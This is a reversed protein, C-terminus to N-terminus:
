PGSALVRIRLLDFKARGYMKRKLLKIRNVHGETRGNSWHHQMAASVEEWDQKLGAAFGRLEEPSASDEAQLMWANLKEVSRQKVVDNFERCLRKACGIAEVTEVLRTALSTEESTRKIDDKLLLWALRKSSIRLPPKEKARIPSKRGTCREAPDRWPAVLRRVCYWSGSFGIAVARQHLERANHVGSEWWQRIQNAFADVTKRTQRKAHEPFESARLFRLITRRDMHLKRGIARIGMGQERLEIAERYRALRRERRCIQDRRAKSVPRSPEIQVPPAMTMQGSIGASDSEAGSQEAAMNQALNIQRHHQDLLRVLAERANVLLHWRDAVQTAHPLADHIGKAYLGSRDRTIIGIQERQKLWQSTAESSREPILDIVRHSQHDVFVTGYRQGRRLAFDDIGIVGPTTPQPLPMTRLRRLITDGSTRIGLQASLRAGPEGGSEVGIHILTHNFRKTGQARRHAMENIQEAFLKRSCQANDCFFRRVSWRIRVPTGRWPLDRLVREYRSHV